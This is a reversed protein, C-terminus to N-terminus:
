VKSLTSLFNPGENVGSFNDYQWESLIVRRRPSSTWWKKRRISQAAYHLFWTITVPPLSALIWFHFSVGRSEDPKLSTSPSTSIIIAESAYGSDQLFLFRFWSSSSINTLTNISEIVYIELTSALCSLFQPVLLIEIPTDEIDLIRCATLNLQNPRAQYNLYLVCFIDSANLKQKAESRCCYPSSWVGVIVWFNWTELKLSKERSVSVHGRM